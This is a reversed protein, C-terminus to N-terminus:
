DVVDCQVAIIIKKRVTSNLYNYNSEKEESYLLYSYNLNVTTVYMIYM